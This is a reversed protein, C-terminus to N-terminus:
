KRLIEGCALCRFTIPVRWGCEKCKIAGKPIRGRGYKPPKPTNIKKRM